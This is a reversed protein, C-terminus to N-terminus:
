IDDDGDQLNFDIEKVSHFSTPSKNVSPVNFKNGNSDDDIYDAEADDPDVYIKFYIDETSSYTCNPPVADNDTSSRPKNNLFSQAFKEGDVKNRISEGFEDTM